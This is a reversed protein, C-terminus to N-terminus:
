LGRLATSSLLFGDGATDIERGRFEQLSRRVTANHTEILDRWRRDGIAAVRETSGVIDTFLVTALVREHEAAARTGALFQAVEDVIWDADGLWPLHKLSFQM